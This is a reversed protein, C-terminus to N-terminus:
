GGADKGADDRGIIVAATSFAAANPTEEQGSIGRFRRSSSELAVIPM